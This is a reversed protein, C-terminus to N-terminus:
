GYLTTLLPITSFYYLQDNVSLDVSMYKTFVDKFEYHNKTDKYLKNLFYYYSEKKYKNCQVINPLKGAFCGKRHYTDKRLDKWARTVSREYPQINLRRKCVDYDAKNVFNCKGLIDTLIFWLPSYSVRLDFDPARNIEESFYEEAEFNSKWFDESDM